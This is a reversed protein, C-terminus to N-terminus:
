VRRISLHLCTHLIRYRRVVTGKHKTGDFPLSGAGYFHKVEIFHCLPEGEAEEGEEEEEEEGSTRRRRRRPAAGAAWDGPHLSSLPIPPDLLFDPTGRGTSRQRQQKETLYTVGLKKLHIEVVYEFCTAALTKNVSSGLRLRGDHLRFNRFKVHLRRLSCASLLSWGYRECYALIKRQHFSPQDRVMGTENPWHLLTGLAEREAADAILEPPGWELRAAAPAARAPCALAADAAITLFRDTIPLSASPPAIGRQWATSSGRERGRGQGGRGRRGRGQGGRGLGRGRRGRFQQAASM